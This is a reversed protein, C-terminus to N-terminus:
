TDRTRMCHMCHPWSQTGAIAASEKSYGASILANNIKAGTAYEGMDLMAM